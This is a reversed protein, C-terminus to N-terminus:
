EVLTKYKLEFLNAENIIGHLKPMELRSFELPELFKKPEEFPLSMNELM